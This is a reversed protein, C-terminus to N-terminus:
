GSLWRRRRLAIQGGAMASIVISMTLTSQEPASVANEGIVDVTFSGTNGAWQYGDMSGLFLRTAGTPIVIQQAISSFALGDGIFFVQKLLPSLILYDRSGPMSFDLASPAASLNPQDPGLFVGMLADIPANVDSFGNDV